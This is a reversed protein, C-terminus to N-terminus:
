RSSAFRPTNLIAGDAGTRETSGSIELEIKGPFAGLLVRHESEDGGSSTRLGIKV